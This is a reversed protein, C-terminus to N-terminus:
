PSKGDHLGARMLVYVTQPAAAKEHLVAGSSGLVLIQGPTLNVRTEFRQGMRELSLEASIM